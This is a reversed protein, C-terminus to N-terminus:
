LVNFSLHIILKFQLTRVIAELWTKTHYTTLYKKEQMQEKTGDLWYCKKTIVCFNKTNPGYKWPFWPTWDVIDGKQTRGGASTLLAYLQKSYPNQM